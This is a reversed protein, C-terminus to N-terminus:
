TTDPPSYKRRQASPISISPFTRTHDRSLSSCGSFFSTASGGTSSGELDLADAKLDAVEHPVALALADGNTSVSATTQNAGNHPVGAGIETLEGSMRAADVANVETRATGEAHHGRRVIHQDGEVLARRELEIVGVVVVLVENM